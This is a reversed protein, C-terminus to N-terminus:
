RVHTRALNEIKVPFSQSEGRIHVRDSTFLVTQKQIISVACKSGVIACLSERRWANVEKVLYSSVQDRCVTMFVAQSDRVFQKATNSSIEFKCKFQSNSQVHGILTNHVVRVVLPLFNFQLKYAAQWRRIRILTAYFSSLM